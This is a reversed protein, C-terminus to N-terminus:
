WSVKGGAQKFERFEEITLEVQHGNHSAYLRRYTSACQQEIRAVIMAYDHPSADRLAELATKGPPLRAVTRYKNSTSEYGADILEQVNITM